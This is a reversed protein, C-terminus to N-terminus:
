KNNIEHDLDVAKLVYRYVDNGNIVVFMSKAGKHIESYLIPQKVNYNIDLIEEFSVIDMVRANDPIIIDKVNAILKDYRKLIKDVKIEYLSKKRRCRKIFLILNVLLMMFLVLLSLFILIYEYNSILLDRNGNIIRKDNISSNDTGVIITNVDLPIEINMGESSSFPIEGKSSKGDTLIHFNIILKSNTTLNYKERFERVISNYYNYPVRLRERIVYYNTNDATIEKEETLNYSKTYVVKNSNISDYVVIDATMYYKYKTDIKQNLSM